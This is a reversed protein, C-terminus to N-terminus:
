EGEWVRKVAEKGMVIFTGQPARFFRVRTAAGALTEGNEEGM